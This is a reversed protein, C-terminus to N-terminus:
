VTLLQVMITSAIGAFYESHMYGVQMDNEMSLLGSPNYYTSYIDTTSAAVSNGMGMARAGIGISLFENSYKRVVQASLSNVSFIMLFFSVSITIKRIM